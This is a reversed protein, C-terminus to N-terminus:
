STTHVHAHLVLRGATCRAAAPILPPSGALLTPILPPPRSRRCGVAHPQAHAGREVFPVEARSAGICKARCIRPVHLHHMRPRCPRLPYPLPAVLVGTRTSQPGTSSTRGAWSRRNRIRRDSADSCSSAGSSSGQLRTYAGRRGTSEHSFFHEGWSVGLRLGRGLAPRPAAYVRGSRIGGQGPSPCGGSGM